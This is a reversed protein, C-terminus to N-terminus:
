LSISVVAQNKSEHEALRRIYGLGMQMTIAVKMILHTMMDIEIFIICYGLSMSVGSDFPPM